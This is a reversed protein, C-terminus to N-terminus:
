QDGGQLFVVLTKFDQKGLGVLQRAQDPTVSTSNGQMKEIFKARENDSDFVSLFGLRKNSALVRLMSSEIPTHDEREADTPAPCKTWALYIM